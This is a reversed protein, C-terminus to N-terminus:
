DLYKASNPPHIKDVLRRDRLDNLLLQAEKDVDGSTTLDIFKEVVGTNTM